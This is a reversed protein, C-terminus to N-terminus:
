IPYKLDDLLSAYDLLILCHDDCTTENTERLKRLSSNVMNEFVPVAYKKLSKDVTLLTVLADLIKYKM